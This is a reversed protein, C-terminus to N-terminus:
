FHLKTEGALVVEQAPIWLGLAADEIETSKPQKPRVRGVNKLSALNSFFFPPPSISKVRCCVLCCGGDSHSVVNSTIVKESSLIAKGKLTWGGVSARRHTKSSSCKANVGSTKNTKNCRGKSRTLSKKRNAGGGEVWETLDKAGELSMSSLSSYVEPARPASRGATIPEGGKALSTHLTQWAATARRPPAARAEGSMGVCPKEGFWCVPARGAGQDVRILCESLSTVSNTNINQRKPLHLELLLPSLGSVNM